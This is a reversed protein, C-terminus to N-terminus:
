LANSSICFCSETCLVKDHLLQYVMESQADKFDRRMIGSRTIFDIDFCISVIFNEIQLVAPSSSLFIISSSLSLLSVILLLHKRFERVFILHTVGKSLYM